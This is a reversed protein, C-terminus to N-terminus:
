IHKEDSHPRLEVTGEQALDIPPEQSQKNSKKAFFERADEISRIIRPKTITSMDNAMHLEGSPDDFM